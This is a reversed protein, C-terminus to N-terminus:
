AIIVDSGIFDIGFAVIFLQLFESVAAFQWFESPKTTKMEFTHSFRLTQSPCIRPQELMLIAEAFLSVPYLILSTYQPEM